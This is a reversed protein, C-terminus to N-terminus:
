RALAETPNLQAANRAPLYGFVMGILSAGGCAMLLVGPSFYMPMDPVFGNFILGLLLSVGAGIIGGMMTVMVAEILFQQLIDSHRAGLAVRIGIERTREVVSVLMINMVGVGGVILSIIAISSGLLTLTESTKKMSEFIRSDSFTMFNKAGHRLTLLETVGQEALKMEVGDDLRVSIQNFHDQVQIRTMLSTYPMWLTMNKGSQWRNKNSVVGVIRLPVHGAFVVQGLPSHHNFLSTTVASDIVAVAARQQVDLATLLRGSELAMGNIDFYTNSVGILNGARSNNRWHIQAASIIKPSAGSLYPQSSLAALDGETLTPRDDEGWDAGSYIDISNTGMASINNLVKNKAGDGLAIVSLVSAIGIIIGLMTLFTRIRHALMAHSAMLCAERLREITEGWWPQQNVPKIVVEGSGSHTGSDRSVQGDALEIVRQAHAAVAPNHTVVIVTHGRQNLEKLIALVEAGSQSDLAGTPEDALIVEAGNMLARAISVRQQQGGSLQGPKYGLREGLGLRTLLAMARARRDHRRSGAYIAPIEVNETATLDSLLHYHQFIFGFHHRRLYALALEDLRSVDRGKFLYRGSSPQDLGGLLNMLTSKGSGSPGMIAVMEGRHITLDLSKLVCVEEDGSMFRRTVGELYILPTM